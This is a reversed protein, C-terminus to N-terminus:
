SRVAFRVWGRWTGYALLCGGVAAAAGIIRWEWSPVLAAVVGGAGAELLCTYCLWSEGPSRFGSRGAVRVPVPTVKSLVAPLLTLTSTFLAIFAARPLHYPPDMLGLLLYSGGFMFCLLLFWHLLLQRWSGVM